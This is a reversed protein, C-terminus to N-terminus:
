MRQKVALADNICMDCQSGHMEFSGDNEMFCDLLGRSHIRGGHPNQMCGCGCEVGDLAEPNSAAFIYAEKIKASAMAYPPLVIDGTINGQPTFFQMAVLVTGFVIFVAVFGAAIKNNNM